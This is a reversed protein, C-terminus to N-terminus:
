FLNRHIIHTMNNMAYMIEIRNQQIQLKSIQCMEWISVGCNILFIIALLICVAKYKYEAEKEMYDRYM